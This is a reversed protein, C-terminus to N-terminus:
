VARLASLRAEMSDLEPEAEEPETELNLAPGVPGAMGLLGDTLQYLVKNVEEEAEEEIEEDEQMEMTDSIMEEIIGAKIMEKQMEEMNKSMEPLKILNNVLKMIETSKKLTGVMKVTALSQQLNMSISNLQAKSTYLRDKAKRSRVIEKALMTCVTRDGKKAAQKLTKKVKAEENDIGRIQRDLEREHARINQRWQKVQEEPSLRKGFILDM